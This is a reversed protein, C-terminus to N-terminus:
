STSFYRELFLYFDMINYKICDCFEECHQISNTILLPYCTSYIPKHKLLHAYDFINIIPQNYQKYQLIILEYVYHRNIDIFALLHPNSVTVSPDNCITCDLLTCKSTLISVLQVSLSKNIAVNNVAM